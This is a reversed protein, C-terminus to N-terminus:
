ASTSSSRRSWCRRAASTSSTSSRVHALAHDQRARHHGARQDGARGLDHHSRDASRRSAARRRRRAAPAGGTTIAVTASIQEKLKAAIKEADAFQLYRVQTDGGSELPTDLHAVLAKIRLRQSKEGGVLVSNSRDDAISARVARRRRRRGRGAARLLTNVVRVVEAAIAHQLNIIDVEDDGAQDIRQIIRM